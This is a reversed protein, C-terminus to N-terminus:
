SLPQARRAAETILKAAQWDTADPTRGPARFHVERLGAQEVVGTINGERLGGSGIVSARDGLLEQACRLGRPDAVSSGSGTTLVADIGGELAVTLAREYDGTADIARHFVLPREGAAARMEAVFDPDIIGQETLAGSVFGVNLGATLTRLRDIEGVLAAAERANHLFGDPKTRVLIRLGMGSDQCHAAAAEILEDGPTLGGCELSRCLEIRDAGAAIAARVGDASAVCLEVQLAMM